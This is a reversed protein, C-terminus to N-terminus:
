GYRARLMWYVVYAALLPWGLVVLLRLWGIDPLPHGNVRLARAEIARLVFDGALLYLGVALLLWPTM